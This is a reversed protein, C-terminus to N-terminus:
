SKMRKILDMHLGSLPAGLEQLTGFEILGGLDVPAFGTEDLVRALKQKGVDGRPGFNRPEGSAAVGLDIELRQFRELGIQDDIDAVDVVAVFREGLAHLLFAAEGIHQDVTM